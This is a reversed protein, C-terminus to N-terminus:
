RSAGDAATWTGRRDRGRWQRSQKSAGSGHWAAVVLWIEWTAAGGHSDDNGLLVAGLNSFVSVLPINLLHNGIIEALWVNITNYL